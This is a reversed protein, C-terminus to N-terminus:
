VGAGSIQRIATCKPPGREKRVTLILGRWHLCRSWRTKKKKDGVGGGVGGTSVQSVHPPVYPELVDEVTAATTKGFYGASGPRIHALGAAHAQPMMYRPWVIRAAPENNGSVLLGTAPWRPRENQGGCREGHVDGLEVALTEEVKKGEQVLVTPPTKRQGAALQAFDEQVRLQPIQEVEARRRLQPLVVKHQARRQAVQRNAPVRAPHFHAVDLVPQLAGELLVDAPAM